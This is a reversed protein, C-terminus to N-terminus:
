PRDIALAAEALRVYGDVAALLEARSVREESTHAVHISGPGYLYPTGWRTLEPVDTAFAVITTEFGPLASLRMAPVLSGRELTARGAVWTELMRWVEEADSVLRVMIRAEASPAIVNDAIGGEIRGVNITTAGLLEDRPLALSPLEYL